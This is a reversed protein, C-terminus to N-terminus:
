CASQTLHISNQSWGLIDRLNPHQRWFVSTYKSIDKYLKQNPLKTQTTSSTAQFFWSNTNIQDEKTFLSILPVLLFFLSEISTSKESLRWLCTVFTLHKTYKSAVFEWLWLCSCIHNMKGTHFAFSVLTCMSMGEPVTPFLYENGIYIM